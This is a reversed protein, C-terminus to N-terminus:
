LDSTRSRSAIPLFPEAFAEVTLGRGIATALAGGWLGIRGKVAAPTKTTSTLYGAFETNGSCLQEYSERVASARLVARRAVEEDAFYWTMADFVAVNFRPIYKGHEGDYRLFAADDFIAFTADVARSLGGMLESLPSEIEEFHDNGGRIVRDLFDRLDGAYMGLNTKFAIYRLLTEADRLRFDPASLRRARQISNEEASMRNVFNTFRGPYLAQRLEHSALPVSARNLRSFILHLLAPSRWNRVVITRIPQTMLSQLHRRLDVSKQLKEYTYNTLLPDLLELGQLPLGPTDVIFHKLATLRQKGDLVYFRGPHRTSEALVIPPVPLGLILSEIFLSQRAKSWATRRQFPPSTVLMGLSMEDSPDADIQGVVTGVTWDLPYIVTGSVQEPTLSAPDEYEADFEDDSDILLEVDSRISM